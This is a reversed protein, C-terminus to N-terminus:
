PRKLSKIVKNRNKGDELEIYYSEINSFLKVLNKFKRRNSFTKHITLSFEKTKNQYSTIYFSDKFGNRGAEKSIRIERISDKKTLSNDISCYQKELVWGEASQMSEVLYDVLVGEEVYEDDKYRIPIGIQKLKTVINNLKSILAM